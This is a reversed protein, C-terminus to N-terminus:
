LPALNRYGSNTITVKIDKAKAVLVKTKQYSTDDPLADFGVELTVADKEKGLYTSIGLALIRNDGQDIDFYMSDKPLLYDNFVIRAREGPVAFQLLAHGAEKCAQIKDPDPPVYQHVLDAAQEMYETLEKKKNDIIKGRIGGKKKGTDDDPGDGFPVKQVKGDAGYYCRQMKTSKEEGKLTLVTTEVWEYSRLRKQSEAFTQKIAAVREQPAPQPKVEASGAPPQAQAGLGLIAGVCWVRLATGTM